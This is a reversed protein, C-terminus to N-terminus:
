SSMPYWTSSFTKPPEVFVVISTIDINTAFDALYENFEVEPGLLARIHFAVSLYEDLHRPL